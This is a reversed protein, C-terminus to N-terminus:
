ARWSSKGSRNRYRALDCSQNSELRAGCSFPLPKGAPLRAPLCFFPRIARKRHCLRGPLPMSSQSACARSTDSTAASALASRTSIQASHSTCTHIQNRTWHVRAAPSPRCAFPLAAAAHALLLAPPYVPQPLPPAVCWTRQRLNPRRSAAEEM